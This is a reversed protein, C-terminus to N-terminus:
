SYNKLFNNFFQNMEKSNLSNENMRYIFSMVQSLYSSAFEHHVRLMDGFAVILNLTIESDYPHDGMSNVIFKTLHNFFIEDKNITLFITKTLCVKVIEVLTL